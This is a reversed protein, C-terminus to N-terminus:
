LLGSSMAGAVTKGLVIRLGQGPLVTEGNTKQREVMMGVDRRLKAAAHGIAEILGGAHSVVIIQGRKPPGPM